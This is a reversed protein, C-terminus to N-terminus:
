VAGRGAQKANWGSREFYGEIYLEVCGEEVVSLNCLIRDGVSLRTDFWQGVVSSRGHHTTFRIAASVYATEGPIELIVVEILDGPCGECVCVDEADKNTSGLADRLVPGFHQWKGKNIRFFVEPCSGGFFYCNIYERISHPLRVSGRVVAQAKEGDYVAYSDVVQQPGVMRPFSAGDSYAMRTAYEVEGLELGSEDQADLLTCHSQQSLWKTVGSDEFVCGIPIVVSRGDLVVSQVLRGKSYLGLINGAMQPGVEVCLCYLMAERVRLVPLLAYLEDGEYKTSMTRSVWDKLRQCWMGTEPGLKGDLKALLEISNTGQCNSNDLQVWSLETFVVENPQIGRSRLEGLLPFSPNLPLIPAGLQALAEWDLHPPWSQWPQSLEQVKSAWEFVENYVLFFNYGRSGFVASDRGRKMEYLGSDGNVIIYSLAVSDDMEGMHGTRERVWTEHRAKIERLVEITYTELDRDILAHDNPCLLILNEYSRLYEQSKSGDGRPGNSRGAIIHAMEGILDRGSIREM